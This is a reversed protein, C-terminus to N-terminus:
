EQVEVQMKIFMYEIQHKYDELDDQQNRKSGQLFQKHGQINENWLKLRQKEAGAETRHYSVSSDQEYDERECVVWIKMRPLGGM